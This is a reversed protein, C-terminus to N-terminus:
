KNKVINNVVLFGNSWAYSFNASEHIHGDEYEMVGTKLNPDIHVMTVYWTGGLVPNSLALTQINERIYKDVAVRDTIYGCSVDTMIEGYSIKNIDKYVYIGDGRDVMEGFGAQANGEGFVIRLQEKNQMGEAMSNWWVDATRAMAMKDVAGVIGEFTGTKKDKEAPLYNFEGTVKEGSLNLILWSVDYLSRSTKNEKYFCLKIPQVVVVNTDDDNIVIEKKNNYSVFFYIGSFFLVILIIPLLNKSFM